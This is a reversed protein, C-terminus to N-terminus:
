WAHKTIYHEKTCGIDLFSINVEYGNDGRRGTHGSPGIDGKRGQNLFLLVINFFTFM